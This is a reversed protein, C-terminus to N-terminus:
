HINVVVWHWLILHLLGWLIFRKIKWGTGFDTWCELLQIVGPTHEGGVCLSIRTMWHEQDWWMESADRFHTEPQRTFFYAELTIDTNHSVPLRVCYLLLYDPWNEFYFMRHLHNKVQSCWSWLRHYWVLLWSCTLPYKGVMVLAEYQVLSWNLGCVQRKSSKCKYINLYSCKVVAVLRVNM